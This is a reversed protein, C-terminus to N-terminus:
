NSKQELLKEFRKIKATQYLPPQHIDDRTWVYNLDSHAKKQRSGKDCRTMSADDHHMCPCIQSKCGFIDFVIKKPKNQSLSSLYNM